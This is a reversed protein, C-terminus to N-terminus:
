PAGGLIVPLYVHSDLSPLSPGPNWAPARGNEVLLRLGSGDRNIVWLDTPASGDSASSREFVIAQGDSSVTLQGAFTNNFNTMSTVQGSAFNYEYLNASVPMYFEDELLSFVFGSGDPLWALGRIFAVFTSADYSVLAEGAAGSGESVLYIGTTDFAEYGAYLLQNARAPTPGWVLHDVFDPLEGSGVGILPTGPQLPAPALPLQELRNFGTIYAVKSGDFRWTPWRAELGPVVGGPVYVTATQVTAGAQVDVASSAHVARNIGEIEVAFQVVDGFDAVNAFTVITSGGPPLSVQQVGPAGQFYLFVDVSEGFISNNEVPIQVAGQPYGAQAACAPAQTLRRYGSGVAGIAYIDAYNISCENEHTSAFALEAGDPRWALSWVSHIDQPDALGHSWLRRDNSGDFGILRIEDGNTDNVYAITGAATALPLGGAESRTNATTMGTWTFLVVVLIFIIFLHKM